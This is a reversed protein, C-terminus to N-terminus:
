SELGFLWEVTSSNKPGKRELLELKNQIQFSEMDIAECVSPFCNILEMEHHIISAQIRIQKQGQSKAPNIKKEIVYNRIRQAKTIGASETPVIENEKQEDISSPTRNWPSQNQFKYTAILLQEVAHILDPNSSYEEFTIKHDGLVLYDFLFISLTIDCDILKDNINNFVMLNTNIRGNEKKRHNCFYNHVRGELSSKYGGNKYPRAVSGCYFIEDSSGWSYCIFRNHILAAAARIERYTASRGKVLVVGNRIKFVPIWRPNILQLSINM